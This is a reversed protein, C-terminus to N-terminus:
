MPQVAAGFLWPHAALLIVYLLLAGGFRKLGIERLALHQRGQAIALFPIASTAGEFRRYLDGARTEYKRDLLATGVIAFAALGGFLVLSALDGRAIAHGMGWLAIAWMVPHRTIRLVGQVVDSRELAKSQEMATPNPTSLGGILLVCALLMCLHTLVHLVPWPPWLPVYGAGGYARALWVLAGLSVLGYVARYPMEGLRAVLADRLPTSSVGYHTAFLFALALVMEIM